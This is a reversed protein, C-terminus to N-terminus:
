HYGSEVEGCAFLTVAEISTFMSKRTTFYLGAVMLFPAIGLVM